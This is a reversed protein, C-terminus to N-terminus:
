KSNRRSHIKGEFLEIAKNMDAESFDSGFISRMAEILGKSGDDQREEGLADSLSDDLNTAEDDDVDDEDGEGGEDDPMGDLTKGDDNKNDVGATGEPGTPIITDDEEIEVNFREKIWDTTPRLGIDKVM